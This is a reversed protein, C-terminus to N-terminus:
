IEKCCPDAELPKGPYSIFPAANIRECQGGQTKWQNFAKWPGAPIEAM